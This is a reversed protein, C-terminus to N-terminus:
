VRERCSARGIEDGAKKILNSHPTLKDINRAFATVNHGKELAENVVHKGISGTAGFIIINM